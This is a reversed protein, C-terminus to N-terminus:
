QKQEEKEKGEEKKNGDNDSDGDDDHAYPLNKTEIFPLWIGGSVIIINKDKQLSQNVSKKEKITGKRIKREWLDEFM